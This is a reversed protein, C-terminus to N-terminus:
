RKPLVTKSNVLSRAGEPTGTTTINRTRDAPSTTNAAGQQSSSIRIGFHTQPGTLKRANTLPTQTEQERENKDTRESPRLGIFRAQVCCIVTCVGELKSEKRTTCTKEEQGEKTHKFAAPYTAVSPL